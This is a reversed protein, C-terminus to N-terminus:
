RWLKHSLPFLPVINSLRIVFMHSLVFSFHKKRNEKEIKSLKNMSMYSM